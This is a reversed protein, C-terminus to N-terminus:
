TDKYNYCAKSNSKYFKILEKKICIKRIHESELQEIEKQIEAM